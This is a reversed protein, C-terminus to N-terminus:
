SGPLRTGARALGVDVWQAGVGNMGGNGESHRDGADMDPRDKSPVPATAAGTPTAEEARSDDDSDDPDISKADGKAKKSKSRISPTKM